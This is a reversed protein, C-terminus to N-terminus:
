LKEKNIKVASKILNKFATEDLKDDEEIVIASHKNFLGKPDHKKLEKAKSFTLRLHKKYTEGTCIMGNNYWVPIGEPKSPMKYKQEEVIEPEAENILKRIQSMREERWDKSKQM